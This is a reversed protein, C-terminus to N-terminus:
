SDPKTTLADGIMGLGFLLGVGIGVVLGLGLTGFLIAGIVPVTVLLTLGCGLQQMRRGGSSLANGVAEWQRPWRWAVVLMAGFIILPWLWWEM